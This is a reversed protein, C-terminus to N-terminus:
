KKTLLFTSLQFKIKKRGITRFLCYLPMYIRVLGQMSWYYSRTIKVTYDGDNLSVINTGFETPSFHRLTSETSTTTTSRGNVNIVKKYYTTKVDNGNSDKGTVETYTSGTYTAQWKVTSGSLIQFSYSKDYYSSRAGSPLYLATANTFDICITSSDSKLVSTSNAYGNNTTGYIKIGTNKTVTESYDTPPNKAFSGYSSVKHSDTETGYFTQIGTNSAAHATTGTGTFILAIGCSLLVALFLVSLCIKKKVKSM